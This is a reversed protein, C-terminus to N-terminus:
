TRQPEQKAALGESSVATSHDNISGIKTKKVTLLNLLYFIGATPM